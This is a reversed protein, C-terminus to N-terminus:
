GRGDSPGDDIEVWVVDGIRVETAAIDSLLYDRYNRSYPEPPLHGFGSIVSPTVSGDSHHLQVRDGTRWPELGGATRGTVAVGRGKIELVDEVVFIRHLSM